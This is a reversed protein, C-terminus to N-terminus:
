IREEGYRKLNLSANDDRDLFLHCGPCDYIKKGLPMDQLTNCRSCRRTSPFSPEARILKVGLAECRDAIKRQLGSMAAAAIGKALRRAGKQMMDIIDLTELVM